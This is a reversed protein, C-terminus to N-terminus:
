SFLFSAEMAHRTCQRLEDETLGVQHRCVDIEGKLDIGFIGPDDTNICVPIGSRLARVIPHSRLDKVCQTLWNSTPCMELCIRNKALYDMLSPDDVCRIGHGIRRAGLGQIASWINEPGAAEGAHITIRAGADAAKRYPKEFLDNPYDVENGALDLGVFRDQNRLFFEVTEWASDVGYDRSAICILGARMEPFDALARRMGAEYGDLADQWPLKSLECVFGPSFRLEVQTTGEARCDEVVEYAVRELVDPRDQVKQFLAFQDLVANLDTLPRRLILKERFADLSTSQAELGREKALELLTSTRVSVDLHRHLETQKLGGTAM